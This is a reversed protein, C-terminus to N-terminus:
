LICVHPVGGIHLFFSKLPNASIGLPDSYFHPPGSGEMGGRPSAVPHLPQRSLHTPGGMAKTITTLNLVLWSWDDSSPISASNGASSAVALYSLLIHNYEVVVNADQFYIIIIIIWEQSAGTKHMLGIIEDWINFCNNSFVRFDLHTYLICRATLNTAM